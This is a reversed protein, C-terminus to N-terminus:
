EKQKSEETAFNTEAYLTLLLFNQTALESYLALFNEFLM